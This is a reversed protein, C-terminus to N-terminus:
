RRSVFTSESSEFYLGWEDTVVNSESCSSRYSDTM